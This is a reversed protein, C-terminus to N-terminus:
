AQLWEDYYVCNAADVPGNPECLDIKTCKGCPTDLLPNSDISAQLDPTEVDYGGGGAKLISNWTAKYAYGGDSRELRDDYVLVECLSRINSETLSINCVGSDEVFKHIQNVTPYQNYTPLQTEQARSTAADDFASPFTLSVAYRWIVELLGNVFESDLERDTFWPGGTVETSPQLHALIYIIRTKDKVSRIQKIYNQTVLSKLCKKVVDNHLNTKKKITKIWMGERGANAICSHVMAEETTMNKLKIAESSSVPKFVLSGNEQLASLLHHNMLEQTWAMLQQADSTRAMKRLEDQTYLKSDGGAMLRQHFDTAKASLTEFGNM